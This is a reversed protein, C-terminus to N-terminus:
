PSTLSSHPATKRRYRAAPLRVGATGRQRDLPLLSRGRRGTRHGSPKDLGLRRHRTGSLRGDPGTRRYLRLLCRWSRPNGLYAIIMWLPFSFLIACSGVVLLSLYKGLMLASAPAPLTLLLELTGNTAEEAWVRMSLAPAFFLCLWPIFRFYSGLDAQDRDFFGGLHFTFAGSLCLFVFLFIMTLPSTGCASTEKRFMARFAPFFGIQRKMTGSVPADSTM